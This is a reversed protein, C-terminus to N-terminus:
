SPGQAPTPAPAPAPAPTPRRHYLHAFSEKFSVSIDALDRLSLSCSQLQGEDIREEIVRDVLLEITERDRDPSSRIVSECSDALMVIATERTHPKPGPYSFMAPDVNPDSIAARRYFYNVRRTGHHEAIFARVPDPLGAQRALAAGAHVHSIIERASERPSLAAHPSDGPGRNEAHMRPNALKGVDHYYAGVRCLLSDAGIRAAAREALLAVAASHAFTGPTERQLRQLLPQGPLGAELLRIRTTVGAAAALPQFLLIAIVAAGAAVSAAPVALWAIQLLEREPEFPWFVLGAVFVTGGAALAATVFHSLM